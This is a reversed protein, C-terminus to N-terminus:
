KCNTDNNTHIRATLAYVHNLFTENTYNRIKLKHKYYKSHSLYLSTLNRLKENQLTLNHIISHLSHATTTILRIDNTLSAIQSTYATTQSTLLTLQHKLHHISSKLHPLQKNISSTSSTIHHIRQKLNTTTKSLNTINTHFTKNLKHYTIYSHSLCRRLHKINTTHQNYKHYSSTLKNHLNHQRYTNIYKIYTSLIHVHNNPNHSSSSPPKPKTLNNLKPNSFSHTLSKTLKINNTTTNTFQKRKHNNNNNNNNNPSYFINTIHFPKSLPPSPHKMISSQTSQFNTTQTINNKSNIPIVDTLSRFHYTKSNSSSNM